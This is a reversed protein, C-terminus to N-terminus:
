NKLITNKQTTLPYFPFFLGFHCFTRNTVSWIEHVMCWIITMQPVCIQFSLIELHKRWKKLTKIKQTTLPTFPCFITWFLFNPGYCKIDWSGHMMHYDNITCMNSIIDGPTKKLKDFNQNEPNNPCLLSFFSGFHCFIREMVSLMEPVMCWTITLTLIDGPPKKM